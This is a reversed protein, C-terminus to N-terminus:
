VEELMMAQQLWQYQRYQNWKSVSRRVNNDAAAVPVAHVSEVYVEELMITQLMITSDKCIGSELRCVISDVM